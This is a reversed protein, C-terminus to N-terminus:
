NSLYKTIHEVQNELAIIRQILENLTDENITGYSNINEPESVPNSRQRYDKILKLRESNAPETIRYGPIKYKMNLKQTTMNAFEDLHRNYYLNFEDITEFTIIQPKYPEIVELPKLDIQFSQIKSESQEFLRRNNKDLKSNMIINEYM